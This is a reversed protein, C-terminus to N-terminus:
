EELLYIIDGEVRSAPYDEGPLKELIEKKEKGLLFLKRRCDNIVGIGLSLRSYRHYDSEMSPVVSETLDINDPFLSATHGDTGMGLIILDFGRGRKRFFKELQFQYQTRCNEMSGMPKVHNVNGHPIEIKSILYKSLNGYNSEPHDLPLHREDVMFIHVKKWEIEEKALLKFLPKPTNGGSLAVSFEGKEEINKRYEGLFIELARTYFDRHRIREIM